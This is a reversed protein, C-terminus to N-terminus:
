SVNQLMNKLGQNIDAGLGDIKSAITQRSCPIDKFIQAMQDGMEGFCELMLVASSQVFTGDSFPKKYTAIAHSQIYNLHYNLKM